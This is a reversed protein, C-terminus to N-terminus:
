FCSCKKYYGLFHYAREQLWKISAAKHFVASFQREHTLLYFALCSCEDNSIPGSPFNIRNTTVGMLRLEKEQLWSRRTNEFLSEDSCQWWVSLRDPVKIRAVWQDPKCITKGTTARHRWAPSVCKSGRCARPVDTITPKFYNRTMKSPDGEKWNRFCVHTSVYVWERCSTSWSQCTTYIANKEYLTYHLM